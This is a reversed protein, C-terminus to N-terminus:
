IAERFGDETSEKLLLYQKQNIEIDNGKRSIYGENIFKRLCRNVTRVCIGTYDSLDQRVFSM